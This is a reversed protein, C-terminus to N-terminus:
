REGEEQVTEAKDRLKRKKKMEEEDNEEDNEEDDKDGGEGDGEGEEEGGGEEGGGGEEKLSLVEHISTLSVARSLCLPFFHSNSADIANVRYCSISDM